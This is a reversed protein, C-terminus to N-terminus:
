FTFFSYSHPHLYPTCSQEEKPPPLHQVIEQLSVSFQLSGPMGVAPTPICVTLEEDLQVQSIEQALMYRPIMAWDQDIQPHNQVVKGKAIMYVKRYGM